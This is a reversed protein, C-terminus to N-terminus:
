LNRCLKTGYQILIGPPRRRVDEERPPDYLLVAVDTHQLLLDFFEPTFEDLGVNDARRAADHALQLAAQRDAENDRGLDAMYLTKPRGPLTWLCPRAM